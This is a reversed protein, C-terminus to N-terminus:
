QCKPLVLANEKGDVCHFAKWDKFDTATKVLIYSYTKCLTNENLACSSFITHVLGNFLSFYSMGRFHEHGRFVCCLSDRKFLEEVLSRGLIFGANRSINSQIPVIQYESFDCFAFNITDIDRPEFDDMDDLVIDKLAALEKKYTARMIKGIPMFKKAVDKEQLLQAPKFGFELGGHVCLVLTTGCGIYLAVPFLNYLNDTVEYREEIAKMKLKKSLEHRYGSDGCLKNMDYDEHNGRLFVLADGSPNAVCLKSLTYLVEISMTGRDVYDGLFICRVGEKLKWDNGLLGRKRVDELAHMFSEEDGHIDGFILLVEGPKILLRQVFPYFSGIKAVSEAANGVWVRNDTLNKKLVEKMKEIATVFDKRDYRSIPQSFCEKWEDFTQSKFKNEAYVGSVLFVLFMYRHDM